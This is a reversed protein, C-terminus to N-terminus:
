IPMPSSTICLVKTESSSVLIDSVMTTGFPVIGTYFHYLICGFSFVNVKQPDYAGSEASLVEPAACVQLNMHNIMSFHLYHSGSHLHTRGKTSGEEHWLFCPWANIHAEPNPQWWIIYSIPKSFAWWGEHLFEECLVCNPFSTERTHLGRKFNQMRESVCFRFWSSQEM